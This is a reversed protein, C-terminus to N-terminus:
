GISLSALPALPVPGSSRNDATIVRRLYGAQGLHFALHASLHWLFRDTQMTFGGVQEPFARALVEPGLTPLVREVVAITTRIDRVLEARTGSRRGFEDERNRVYTSGGLVHGVFHQLNGCVHVALNGASNSVGPVTAWVLGDDPFMEIEREFALLERVILTRLMETLESV